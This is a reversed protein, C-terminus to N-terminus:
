ALQSREETPVLALALLAKSGGDLRGGTGADADDLASHRYSMTLKALTDVGLLALVAGRDHDVRRV